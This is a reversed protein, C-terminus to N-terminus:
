IEEKIETETVPSYNTTWSILDDRDELGSSLWHDLYGPIQTLPIYDGEFICELTVM